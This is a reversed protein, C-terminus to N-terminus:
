GMQRKDALSHGTLGIEDLQASGRRQNTASLLEWVVAAVDDSRESSRRRYGDIVQRYLGAEVQTDLDEVVLVTQLYREVDDGFETALRFKRPASSVSECIRQHLEAINKVDWFQVYHENPRRRFSGV